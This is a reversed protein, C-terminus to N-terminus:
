PGARRDEYSAVGCSNTSDTRASGSTVEDFRPGYRDQVSNRRRRLDLRWNLRVVDKTVKTYGVACHSTIDHRRSLTLLEYLAKLHHRVYPELGRPGLVSVLLELAGSTDQAERTLVLVVDDKLSADPPRGTTM